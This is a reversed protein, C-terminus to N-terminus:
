PSSFFDSKWNKYKTIPDADTHQDPELLPSYDRGNGFSNGANVNYNGQTSFM